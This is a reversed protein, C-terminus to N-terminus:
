EPLVKFITREAFGRPMLFRYLKGKQEYPPCNALTKEKKEMALKAIAIEDITKQQFTKAIIATSVGRKLLNNRLLKVGQPKRRLHDEIFLDAFVNDDLYKLEKLRALVEDVDDPTGTNKALLKKKIQAVTYRQRGLLRFAYHLLLKKTDM